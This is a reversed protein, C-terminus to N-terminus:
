LPAGTSSGVEAGHADYGVESEGSTTGDESRVFDSSFTDYIMDVPGGMDERSFYPLLDPADYRRHQFCESVFRAVRRPEQDMFESVKGPVHKLQRVAESLTTGFRAFLTRQFKTRIPSYSPCEFLVHFEDEVVSQSCKTCLREDRPVRPRSWRGVEIALHHAGTRLRMLDKVHQFPIGATHRIYRPMGEPFGQEQSAPGKPTAFWRSYTALKIKEVTVERPNLGEVSEWPENVMQSWAEWVPEHFLKALDEGDGEYWKLGWNRVFIEVQGSADRSSLLKSLMSMFQGAWTTRAGAQSSRALAISERIAVGLVWCAAGVSSLGAVAGM